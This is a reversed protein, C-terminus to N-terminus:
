GAATAAGEPVAGINQMFRLANWEGWSEVLRDDEYRDISIGTVPEGQDHTPELGMFANEFTGVGHWRMVVKDGAVFADDVEFTLDPFASRYMAIREKIAERDADGMVPDHDVFGEACLEDIVELNGGGWAEDLLRRSSALNREFM